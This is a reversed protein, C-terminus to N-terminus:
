SDLLDTSQQDAYIYKANGFGLIGIFVPSLLILGVAFSSDKGFVKALEIYILILFVINAIPILLLAIWWLPKRVIELLVIINYIPVISAWGPKNAKEYLKWMSIIVTVIIALYILLIFLIFVSSVMIKLKLKTDM